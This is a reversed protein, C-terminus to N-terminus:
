RLESNQGIAKIWAKENKGVFFPSFRYHSVSLALVMMLARHIPQLSVVLKALPLLCSHFKIKVIDNPSNIKM